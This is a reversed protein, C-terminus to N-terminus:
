GKTEKRVKENEKKQNATLTTAQSTSEARGNSHKTKM